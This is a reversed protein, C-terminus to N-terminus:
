EDQNDALHTNRHAVSSAAHHLRRRAAAANQKVSSIVKSLVVLESPKHRQVKGDLVREIITNSALPGLHRTLVFEAFISPLVFLLLLPCVYPLYQIHKPILSFSL